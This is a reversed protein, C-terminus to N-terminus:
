TAQKHPKGTGNKYNRIFNTETASKFCAKKDSSKSVGQLWSVLPVELIIIEELVFVVAKWSQALTSNGRSCINTAAILKNARLLM